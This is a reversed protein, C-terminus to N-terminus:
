PWVEADALIARREAALRDLDDAELDALTLAELKLAYEVLSAPRAEILRDAAAEFAAVAALYAGGSPSALWEAWTPGVDAVRLRRGPRLANFRAVAAEAEAHAARVEAVIARIDIAATM